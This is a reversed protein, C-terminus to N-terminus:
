HLNIQLVLTNVICDIQEVLCLVVRKKVPFAFIHLFFLIDLNDGIVITLDIFFTVQEFNIKRWKRACNNTSETVKLFKSIMQWAMARLFKNIVLQM